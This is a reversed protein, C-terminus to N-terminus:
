RGSGDLGAGGTDLGCGGAVLGAGGDLGFGVGPGIRRASYARRKMTFFLAGLGQTTGPKPTKSSPWVFGM